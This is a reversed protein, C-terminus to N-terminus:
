EPIKAGWMWQWFRERDFPDQGVLMNKIRTRIIERSEPHLGEQDGHGQGGFYHGVVGEDTHITTLTQVVEAGHQGTGNHFRDVNIRFPTITIDTIKVRAERRARSWRWGRRPPVANGRRAGSGWGTASRTSSKGSSRSSTTPRAVCM